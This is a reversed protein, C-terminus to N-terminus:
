IVAPKRSHRFIAYLGINIALLDPYPYKEALFDGFTYIPLLQVSSIQVTLMGYLMGYTIDQETWNRAATNKWDVQSAVLGFYPQKIAQSCSNPEAAQLPLKPSRIQVSSFIVIGGYCYTILLLDTCKYLGYFLLINNNRIRYTCYRRSYFHRQHASSATSTSQRIHEPLSNWVYPGAFCFARRGYTSVNYRPFNLLERSASSLQRRGAVGAVPTAISNRNIRLTENWIAALKEPM